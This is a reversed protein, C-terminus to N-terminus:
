GGREAGAGDSELQALVLPHDLFQLLACSRVLKVLDRGLRLRSGSWALLYGGQREGGLASYVRGYRVVALCNFGLLAAEYPLRLFLPMSGIQAWVFEVVDREVIQRHEDVLRPELPLLPAVLARVLRRSALRWGRPATTPPVEHASGAALGPTVAPDALALAPSASRDLLEVSESRPCAGGASRALM